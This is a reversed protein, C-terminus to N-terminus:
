PDYVVKYRFNGTPSLASSSSKPSFLLLLDMEGPIYYNIGWLGRYIKAPYKDAEVSDFDQYKNRPQAIIFVDKEFGYAEIKLIM